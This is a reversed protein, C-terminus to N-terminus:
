VNSLRHLETWVRHLILEYRRGLADNVASKFNSYDIEMVQGALWSAVDVQDAHCRYQYDTGTQTEIETALPVAERFRVLDARRRTRVTVQGPQDDPKRVISYFGQTTIVWM